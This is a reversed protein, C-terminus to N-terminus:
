QRPRGWTSSSAPLKALREERAARNRTVRAWTESLAQCTPTMGRKNLVGDNAMYDRIVTWCPREIGPVFTATVVRPHRWLWRYVDGYGESGDNRKWRAM